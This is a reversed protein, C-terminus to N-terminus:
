KNRKRSSEPPLDDLAMPGTRAGGSMLVLLQQMQPSFEKREQEKTAFSVVWYTMTGLYSASLIQDLFHYQPGFPQHSQLVVVMLSVISYLGLGTAVQLERDRWGISLLQSFCAMVLFCIVRLISFTEQLHFLTASLGPQYQQAGFTAFPWTALGALAVLGYLVFRSGRPLSSRIPRLVSWALEGLVAFQLLSDIIAQTFYYRGYLRGALFGSLKWLVLAGTVDSALTWLIYICFFPLIRVVHRKFLVGCVASEGVVAACLVGTDFTV